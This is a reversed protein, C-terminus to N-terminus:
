RHWCGVHAPQDWRQQIRFACEFAGAASEMREWYFLVIVSTNIGVLLFLQFKDAFFKPDSVNLSWLLGAMALWSAGGMVWSANALVRERYRDLFLCRSFFM